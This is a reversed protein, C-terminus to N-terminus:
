GWGRARGGCARMATTLVARVASPMHASAMGPTPRSDSNTKTQLKMGMAPTMMDVVGMPAPAAARRAAGSQEAGRAQLGEGLRVGGFGAGKGGEREGRGEGGGKEGERVGEWVCGGTV